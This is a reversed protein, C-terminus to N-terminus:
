AMLCEGTNKKKKKTKVIPVVFFIKLIRKKKFFFNKSVLVTFFKDRAFPNKEPATGCEYKARSSIKKKFLHGKKLKDEKAIM